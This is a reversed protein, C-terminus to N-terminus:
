LEIRFISIICEESVDALKRWVAHRWMKSYKTRSLRPRLFTFYNSVQSLCDYKQGTYSLHKTWIGKTAGITRLPKEHNEQIGGCINWSIVDFLAVVALKWMWKFENNVTMWDNLIIYDLKSLATDFQLVSIFILSLIFFFRYIKHM